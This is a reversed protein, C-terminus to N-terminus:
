RTRLTLFITHRFAKICYMNFMLKIKDYLQMSFDIETQELEKSFQLGLVADAEQPQSLQPGFM